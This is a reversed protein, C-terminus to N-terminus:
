QKIKRVTPSSSGNGTLTIHYRGASIPHDTIVCCGPPVSVIFSKDDFGTLEAISERILSDVSQAFEETDIVDAWRTLFADRQTM